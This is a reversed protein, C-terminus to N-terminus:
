GYKGEPCIDPRATENGFQYHAWYVHEDSCGGYGTTMGDADFTVTSGWARELQSGQVYNYLPIQLASLASATRVRDYTTDVTSASSQNAGPLGEISDWFYTRDPSIGYLPYFPNKDGHVGFSTVNRDGNPYADEALGEFYLRQQQRSNVVDNSCTSAMPDNWACDCTSAPSSQYAPCDSGYDKCEEAFTHMETFTDVAPLGGSYLWGAIRNLVYLDRLPILMAETAYSARMHAFPLMFYSELHTYAVELAHMLSPLTNNVRILVYAAIGVMSLLLPLAICGCIWWFISSRLLSRHSTSSVISQHLNHRLNEDDIGTAHTNPGWHKRNESVLTRPPDDSPSFSSSSSTLSSSLSTPPKHAQQFALGTSMARAPGYSSSGKREDYLRQFNKYLLFPNKVEYLDQKIVKATGKGSFQQIMIHFEDLLRSIETRPSFRYTWPKKRLQLIPHEEQDTRSGAYELIESGIHNMWQLPSTLYLAVLYVLSCIVVISVVSALVTVRVINNVEELLPGRAKAINEERESAYATIVCMFEPRYHRAWPSDLPPPKPFPHIGIYYRDDYYYWDEYYGNTRYSQDYFQRIEQYREPTIGYHETEDMMRHETQHIPDPRWTTANLFTAKDDIRITGWHADLGENFLFTYTTSFQFASVSVRTCAVLEHTIPHYLAMGFDLGLMGDTDYTPGWVHMRQPELAEDRCWAQELVNPYSDKDDNNNTDRGQACMAMQERTGVMTTTTTTTTTNDQNWPNDQRLWDCGVIEKHRPPPPQHRGPFVVSAEQEPQVFYVGISKIESHHEYLAKLLPSMYDSLNARLRETAPSGVSRAAFVADVTSINHVLSSANSGMTTTTTTTTLNNNNNNNNNNDLLITREFYWSHRHRVHERAATSDNWVVNPILDDQYPLLNKARLPYSTSSSSTNHHHYQPFLASADLFLREQTTQQVLRFLGELSQLKQTGMDAMLRAVGAARLEAWQDMNLAGVNLVTDGAHVTTWISVAMVLLLALVSGIGFCIMIQTRLSRMRLCSAGQWLLVLSGGSMKTSSAFESEAGVMTPDKNYGGPFSSNAGPVDLSDVMPSAVSGADFSVKHNGFRGDSPFSVVVRQHHDLGNNNHNNHNPVDDELSSASLSAKSRRYGKLGNFKM